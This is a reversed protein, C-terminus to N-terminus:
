WPRPASLQSWLLQNEEHLRVHSRGLQLRQLRPQLNESGTVDCLPLQHIVSSPKRSLNLLIQHKWFPFGLLSVIFIIRGLICSFFSILPQTVAWHNHPSIGLSSLVTPHIFLCLFGVLLRYHVGRFLGSLWSWDLLQTVVLCDPELEAFDWMLVQLAGWVLYLDNTIFPANNTAPFARSRQCPLPARRWGGLPPVCQPLDIILSREWVRRHLAGLEAVPCSAQPVLDTGSFNQNTIGTSKNRKFIAVLIFCGSKLPGIGWPPQTEPYLVEPPVIFPGSSAHHYCSGVGHLYKLGSVRM